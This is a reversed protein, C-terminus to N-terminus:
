WEKSYYLCGIQVIDDVINPTHWDSGMNSGAAFILGTPNQNSEFTFSYITYGTSSQSDSILTMPKLEQYAFNDVGGGWGNIHPTADKHSGTSENGIQFTFYVTFYTDAQVPLVTLPIVSVLLMFTVLLSLVARFRQHLKIKM